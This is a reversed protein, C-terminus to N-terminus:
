IWKFIENEWNTDKTLTCDKKRFIEQLKTKFVLHSYRQANMGQGKGVVDVYIIM